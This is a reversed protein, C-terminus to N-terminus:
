SLSVLPWVLPVIVLVIAMCVANLPLGVKLFDTYRYGGPGYVLLNQYGIPTAFAASAAMATAIAFPRPELGAAVATTMAVPFMIAAGAANGVFYVFAVTLAYVAALMALPGLSSTGAIVISSVADAAGSSALAEAIGFASGILILIPFNVAARVGQTSICGTAVLALLAAMAAPLM